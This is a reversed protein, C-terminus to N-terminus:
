CAVADGKRVRRAAGLACLGLAGLAFTGPEPASIPAVTLDAYVWTNSESDGTKLQVDYRNEGLFLTGGGEGGFVLENYGDISNGTLLFASLMFSLYGTEGSAHDTVWVDFRVKNDLAPNTPPATDLRYAQKSQVGLNIYNQSGAGVPLLGEPLQGYAHVVEDTEGNGVQRLYAGLYFETGFHSNDYDGRMSWEIPGAATLQPLALLAVTALAARLNCRM